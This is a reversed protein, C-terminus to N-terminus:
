LLRVFINDLKGQFQDNDQAAVEKAGIRITAGSSLTVVPMPASARVAGDIVLEIGVGTRRCTVQHWVNDAVGVLSKLIVRSEVGNRFGSVVCSPKGGAKDVQLKWQGGADGWRGKQLVNEGDATESAKIRVDAGWEFDATGPDLSPADVIEIMANPCSEVSCPGPFDAAGSVPNITGGYKTKVIGNNGNGSVDSVTTGAALPQGQDFNMVLQDSAARVPMPAGSVAALAAGVGITAVLLSSLAFRTRPRAPM